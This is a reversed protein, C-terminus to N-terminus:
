FGPAGYPLWIVYLGYSSPFGGTCIYIYCGEYYYGVVSFVVLGLNTCLWSLVGVILGSASYLAQCLHVLYFCISLSQCQEMDESWGFMSFFLRNTMYLVLSTGDMLWRFVDDLDENLVEFFFRAWLRLPDWIAVCWMVLCVVGMWLIRDVAGWNLMEWFASPVSGSSSLTIGFCTPAVM